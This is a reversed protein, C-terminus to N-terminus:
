IPGWIIIIIILLHSFFIVKGLIVYLHPPLAVFFFFHWRVYKIQVRMMHTIQHTKPWAMRALSAVLHHWFNSHCCPRGDSRMRVRNGHARCLDENNGHESHTQTHKDWAAFTHRLSSAYYHPLLLCWCSPPTLIETITVCACTLFNYVLHKM